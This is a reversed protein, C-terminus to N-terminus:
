GTIVLPTPWKQAPWPKKQKKGLKTIRKAISGLTTRTEFAPIQLGVAGEKRAENVGKFHRRKTRKKDFLVHKAGEFNKNFPSVILVNVLSM